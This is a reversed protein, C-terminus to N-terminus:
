KEKRIIQIAKDLVEDRGEKIGKITPKIVIDPVIGIRQTESGDPYFVGIGTIGTRLGGPLNIYSYNGDAGATTSGVITTNEGARFAMATFEAQSQTDENVLVVLKGRYTDVGSPISLMNKMIFEGPNKFNVETFQVFETSKSVFYSGLSYPVFTSPYNRIDIIIGKTNKFLKKIESIDEQEIVELTIYGIDKNLLKYCETATKKYVNLERYAFLPLTHEQTKGDSIYTIKIEKDPSRLISRAMNRDRTPENSATHYRYREKRIQAVTKGNIHTIVDGVKVKSADKHEPNYYRVVVLKNEVFSVKFPATHKGLMQEFKDDGGYLNAHTDDVDGIIHLAAIEFELESSANIFKPIYEKLVSSWDKDTLNKYPFYYHIMNWYRYLTLLRFGADPYNMDKYKNENLFEPNGIGEATKVYYQRGQFRNNYIHTLKARVSSGINLADMWAMDPKLIAKEDTEKCKECEAVTGLKEIWSILVKDREGKSNAKLFKPLVRFLEYDWNYNGKGIAPHHYKLFGWIKGLVELDNIKADTLTPFTVKSGTDFTTDLEAKYVKKESEKILQVDKGDITLEFDDFWAVGEGSLIGAVFIMEADEPYDLTITYKKWDNTGEIKQKSMNDFVLSKGNGDVRLLLGAYGKVDKTKMYGTLSITTGEFDAPVQYTICGFSDNKGKAHIKGAFKGSHAKTDKTVKYTGWKFWNDPLDNRPSAKEFDFNFKAKDTTNQATTYESCFIFLLLFVFFTNKM